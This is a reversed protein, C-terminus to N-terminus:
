KLKDILIKDYLKRGEETLSYTYYSDRYYKSTVLGVETYFNNAETQKMSQGTLINSCVSYFNDISGERKLKNYILEIKDNTITESTPLVTNEKAEEPKILAALRKELSEYDNQLRLKTEREEEVRKELRNIEQTVKLYESKLIISSNDTLKYVQPNVIKDYFNVILRSLSLLTYTIILVIFSVEICDWFVAFTNYNTFYSEIITIKDSLTCDKDFNFLSYIFKWNKILWVIIFTSLFPNTTKQSINAKLSNAINQIM